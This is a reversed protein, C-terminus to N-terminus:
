IFVKPRSEGIAIVTAAPSDKLIKGESGTAEIKTGESIVKQIAEAQGNFAGLFRELAIIELAPADKDSNNKSTELCELISQLKHFNSHEKIMGSGTQHQWFRFMLLPAILYKNDVRLFYNDKEDYACDAILEFAVQICKIAPSHCMEKITTDFPRNISWETMAM